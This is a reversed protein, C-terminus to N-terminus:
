QEFGNAFVRDDEPVPMGNGVRLLLHRTSDGVPVGPRRDAQSGIVLVRGDPQMTAASAFEDFRGFREPM